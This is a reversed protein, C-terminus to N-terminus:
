KEVRGELGEREGEDEREVTVGNSESAVSNRKRIGIGTNRKV